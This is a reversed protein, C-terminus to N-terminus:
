IYGGRRRHISVLVTSIHFNCKKDSSFSQPFQPMFITIISTNRDHLSSPHNPYFYFVTTEETGDTEVNEEQGGTYLRSHFLGCFVFVLCLCLVSVFVRYVFVFVFCLVCFYFVTTGDIEM